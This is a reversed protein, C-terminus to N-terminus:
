GTPDHRLKVGILLQADGDNLVAYTEGNVVTTGANTWHEADTMKVTDNADGQILLQVHGSGTQDNVVLDHQGFKEVAKADLTLMDGRGGNGSLDIHALGELPIRTPDGATLDLKLDYGKNIQLWVDAMAHTAGDTTNFSSELGIWAQM